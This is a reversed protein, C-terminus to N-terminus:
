RRILSHDPGERAMVAHASVHDKAPQTGHPRDRRCHVFPQVLSPPALRLGTRSLRLFLLSAGLRRHTAQTLFATRENGKYELSDPALDDRDVVRRPIESGLQRVEAFEFRLNGLKARSSVRGM